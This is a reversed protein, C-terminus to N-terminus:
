ELLAKTSDFKRHFEDYHYYNILLYVKPFHRQLVNDVLERYFSSLQYYGYHHLKEVFVVLDFKQFFLHLEPLLFLREHNM